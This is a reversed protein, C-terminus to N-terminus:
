CLGHDGNAGKGKLFGIRALRRLNTDSDRIGLDRM